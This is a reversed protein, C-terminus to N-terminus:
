HVTEEMLPAEEEILLEGPPGPRRPNKIKGDLYDRRRDDDDGFRKLIAREVTALHTAVVFGKSVRMLRCYRDLMEKGSDTILITINEHPGSPPDPYRFQHAKPEPKDPFAKAWRLRDRLYLKRCEDNPLRELLRAEFRAPLDRLYHSVPRGWFDAVRQARRKSAPPLTITLEEFPETETDM